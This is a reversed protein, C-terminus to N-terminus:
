GWLIRRAFASPVRTSLSTTTPAPALATTCSCTSAGRSLGDGPSPPGSPPDGSASAGASPAGGPACFGGTGEGGGGSGQLTGWPAFRYTATRALTGGRMSPARFSGM